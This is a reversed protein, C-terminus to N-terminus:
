LDRQTVRDLRRVGLEVGRLHRVVDRVLECADARDLALLDGLGEAGHRAGRDAVGRDHHAHGHRLVVGRETLGDGRVQACDASTRHDIKHGHWLNFFIAFDNEIGPLHAGQADGVRQRIHVGEPHRDTDALQGVLTDERRRRGSGRIARPSTNKNVFESFVSVNQMNPFQSLREAMPPSSLGFM